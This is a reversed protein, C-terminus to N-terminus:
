EVVYNSLHYTKGNYEFTVAGRYYVARVDEYKIGTTLDTITETDYYKAIAIVLCGLTLSAIIIFSIILRKM